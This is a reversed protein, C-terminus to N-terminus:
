VWLKLLNFLVLVWLSTFLERLAPLHYPEWNKGSPLQSSLTSLQTPLTLIQFYFSLVIRIGLMVCFVTTKCYYASNNLLWTFKWSFFLLFLQTHSLSQNALKPANIKKLFCLCFSENHFLSLLGWLSPLKIDQQGELLLKGFCAYWQQNM